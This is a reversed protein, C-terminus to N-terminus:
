RLAMISKLLRHLRLIESLISVVSDLTDRTHLRAEFEKNMLTVLTELILLRAEGRESFMEKALKLKAM